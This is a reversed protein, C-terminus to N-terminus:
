VTKHKGSKKYAVKEWPLSKAGEEHWKGNYKIEGEKRPYTKNNWRIWHDGYALKGSEMDQMHVQEHTVIEKEKASGPKVSTDINISGDNNAEGLIGDELNKRVINTNKSNKFGRTEKGLKFAM